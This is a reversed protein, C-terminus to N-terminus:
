ASLPHSVLRLAPRLRPGSRARRRHSLLHTLRLADQAAPHAALTHATFLLGTTGISVASISSRAIREWAVVVSSKQGTRRAREAACCALVYAGDFDLLEAVKLATEDGFSNKGTRVNSLSAPTIGLKKAVAYDSVPTTDGRESALRKTLLELFDLATHLQDM